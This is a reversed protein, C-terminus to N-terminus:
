PSAQQCEQAVEFLTAQAAADRHRSVAVILNNLEQPTFREELRSVYCQCGSTCLQAQQGTRLCSQYCGQFVGARLEALNSPPRVVAWVVLVTGLVFLPGTTWFGWRLQRRRSPDLDGDRKAKRLKLACFLANGGLALLFGLIMGVQFRDSFEPM